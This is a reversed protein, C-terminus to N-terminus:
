PRQESGTSPANDAAGNQPSATWQTLDRDLLRGLLEVDAGLQEVISGRVADTIGPRSEARWMRSKLAKVGPTRTTRSWTRLRRMAPDLARPPRHTLHRLVTSRYAKNSANRVEFDPAWSGDLGVFEVLGRWVAMPDAALDDFVIVHVADRAVLDLVRSLARGQAGVLPYDVLKPDLPEVGPLKGELSRAWARGLDPEDENLAVLQTRHYSTILSVPNRVSVIFRAQPNAALIDPVATASYLYTTSGEARVQAAQAEPSAFLQSYAEWTDFGYHRRQGPFDSAWYYPEKPVSWFVDPHGSLWGAVSTTGAKPAGILFLDPTLKDGPASM